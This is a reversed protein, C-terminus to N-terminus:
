GSDTAGEFYPLSKWGLIDYPLRSRSARTYKEVSTSLVVPKTTNRRLIFAELTLNASEAPGELYFLRWLGRPRRKVSVM